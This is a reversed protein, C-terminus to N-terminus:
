GKFKKAFPLFEKYKKLIEDLDVNRDKDIYIYAKKQYVMRKSKENLTGCASLSIGIINLPFDNYSNKDVINGLHVYKTDIEPLVKQVQRVISGKYPPLFGDGHYPYLEIQLKRM